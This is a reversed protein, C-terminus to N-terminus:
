IGAWRAVAAALRRSCPRWRHRSSRSLASREPAGTLGPQARVVGGDSRDPRRDRDAPWAAQGPVRPGPCNMYERDEDEEFRDEDYCVLLRVRVADEDEEVIVDCVGEGGCLAVRLQLRGPERERHGLCIAARQPRGDPCPSSWRDLWRAREDDDDSDDSTIWDENNWSTIWDEDNWAGPM